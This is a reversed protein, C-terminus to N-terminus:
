YAAKLPILGDEVIAIAQRVLGLREEGAVDKERKLAHNEGQLESLRRQLKDIEEPETERTVRVSACAEDVLDIVPLCRSRPYRHWRQEYKEQIGRLINIAKSVVPENIIVQVFRREPWVAVRHEEALWLIRLNDIFLIDGTGGNEASAVSSVILVPNKKDPWIENNCSIVHDIKDEEASSTLNVANKHLADFSAETNKPEVQLSARIQQILAQLTVENADAEKIIPVISLDKLLASSSSLVKPSASIM